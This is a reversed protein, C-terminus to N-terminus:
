RGSRKNMEARVAALPDDVVAGDDEVKRVPPVAATVPPTPTPMAGPKGATPSRWGSVRRRGGVKAQVRHWTKRATEGSPPRGEGDLIGSRGLIGALVSWDPKVGELMGAFEDHHRYLWRFLPSQASGRGGEIADRLRTITDGNGKEM